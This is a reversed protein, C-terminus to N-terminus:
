RPVGLPRQNVKLTKILLRYVPEFDYEDKVGPLLRAFGIAVTAQNLADILGELRYASSCAGPTPCGRPEFDGNTM